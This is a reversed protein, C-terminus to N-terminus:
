IQAINTKSARTFVFNLDPCFWLLSIRIQKNKPLQITEYLYFQDDLSICFFFFFLFFFCCAVVEQDHSWIEKM